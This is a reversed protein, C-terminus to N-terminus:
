IMSGSSRRSSRVTTSTSTCMSSCIACAPPGRPREALDAEIHGADALAKFVGAYDEPPAASLESVLQAGVDICTQIALQLWRETMARVREDALYADEGAQRVEELREILRELRDIRAGIRDGDVM